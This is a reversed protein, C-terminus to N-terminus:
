EIIERCIADNNTHHLPSELYRGQSCSAILEVGLSVPVREKQKYKCKKKKKVEKKRKKFM